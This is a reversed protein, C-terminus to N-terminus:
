DLAKALTTLNREMVSFYDEGANIQQETLGELPNLVLTEIGLSEALTEAVKPSVLEEFLIYRIGLREATERVEQLKRVTPEADPSLGMVGVQTLGYDRALYGFYEHSVIFTKKNARSALDALKADLNKLQELLQRYNAEYESGHEPDAAVLAEKINAAMVMAQKPSLWVHPDTGHHDDHHGSEHGDGYGHEDETDEEHVHGDGSARILETGRSVEAVLPGEGSDFADLFDEAWGEYGAGLYLFVDSEAIRQMDKLKPSWDHSDVGAPVLNAVAVRSGGIKSAFDYLPYFSATVLMKGDMGGQEDGTTNGSDSCGALLALALFIAMAASIGQIARKGTKGPRFSKM